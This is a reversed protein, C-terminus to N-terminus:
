VSTLKKNPKRGGSGLERGITIINYGQVKDKHKERRELFRLINQHNQLAYHGASSM